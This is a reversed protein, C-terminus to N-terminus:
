TTKLTVEKLAEYAPGDPGLTSKFLTIKDAIFGTDKALDIKLPDLKEALKDKNLGSKVRGITIHGLFEREEKPINLEELKEELEEAILKTENNQDKIGVWIIRPRKLDPFVGLSSLTIKYQPQNKAAEQIIQKIEEIKGEEIEGIFKLTLHINHPEVWKVDAGSRKLEDQIRSLITKINEPLEIAIFTRM